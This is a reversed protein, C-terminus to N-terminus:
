NIFMSKVYRNKEAPVRDKTAKPSMKNLYLPDLLSFHAKKISMNPLAPAANMLKKGSFVIPVSRRCINKLIHIAVAM